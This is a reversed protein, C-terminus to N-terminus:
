ENESVMGRFAANMIPIAGYKGEMYGLSIKENKRVHKVEILSYLDTERTAHLQTFWIQDRRFLKMDMLNTNHTTFILQAFKEPHIEYFLKILQSVIKEHLGVEIEDCILIKGKSLIDLLPCIVQFLKQVGTSEETILDTSFNDYIVSANIKKLTDNNNQSLMISQIQEPLLDKIKDFDIKEIKTEIDKIGTGLQKLLSIFNEKVAHNKEMLDISYELWNNINPADVTSKYIVIDDHFFLFAKEVEPVPSFNAACSLFLRNEKLADMALTFSNKYKSGPVIELKKREFIKTQRRNPFYYLYEEYVKGEQISFGYAYRVDDVIFQFVCESPVNKNSLKHPYQAIQQGPQHNISNVIISRALAIAGIFNSKGSGNAGYIAAIRLIRKSDYEKTRDLFTTDPSAILSFTIKEKISKFNSCSFQLLM